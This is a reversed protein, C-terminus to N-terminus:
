SIFYHHLNSTDLVSETFAAKGMKCEQAKRFSGCMTIIGNPRPMKLKKYIYNSTAM